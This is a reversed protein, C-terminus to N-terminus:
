RKRDKPVTPSVPKGRVYFCSLYTGGPTGNGSPAARLGHANGDILQGSCDEVLDGHLEIQFLFDREVLRSYRAKNFEERFWDTDVEVQLQDTFEKAMPRSPTTNLWVIPVSIPVRWGTGEDQPYATMAVVEPRRLSEVKVPASFRVAFDTIGSEVDAGAFRAEFDEWPIATDSRHWAEWSTWEIQTLDCGRILDYLLGNNKVIRRPGCADDVSRVTLPTCRDGPSELTICALAVGDNLAVSFGNWSALCATEDEPAEAVWECLRSHPGRGSGSCSDDPPCCDSRLCDREGCPCEGDLPQISFVATECIYAAEPSGCGCDDAGAIFGTSREAYHVSLLYRGPPARELPIPRGVDGHRRLFTNAQGLVQPQPVIVERGDEDLAFGKGVTLPFPSPEPEPELEEYEPEPKTSGDQRVEVGDAPEQPERVGDADQGYATDARAVEAPSADTREAEAPANDKEPPAKQTPAEACPTKPQPLVFGYVVGSGLIARNILRRREIGYLQEAMFDEAKLRKARFYRNRRSSGCDAGSGDATRKMAIDNM